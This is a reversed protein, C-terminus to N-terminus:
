TMLGLIWFRHHPTAGTTERTAGPHGGDQGGAQSPSVYLRLPTSVCLRLSTFVYLRLSAFAYLRLPTSVCLRLSTFVDLRLSTFVYLRSPTSVYLRSSTSVYLRLSASVYLRSSTSVHLRLSTFVHLRLSTSRGREREWFISNPARAGTDNLTLNLKNSIASWAVQISYTFWITSLYLQSLMYHM